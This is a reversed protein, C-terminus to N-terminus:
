SRGAKLIKEVEKKLMEEEYGRVLRGNVFVAPTGSLGLREAEAKSAAVQRATEVADFCTKFAEADLKLEQALATPSAATLSEQKSFALDHFEWFRGQKQACAAGKAIDTSVPSRIPFDLYILQVTQPYAKVLKDLATAAHRCHSCLYDAFEVITVKPQSAGISPAGATAITVPIAVPEAQRLAFHGSRKLTEVLQRRQEAQQENKLLTKIDGQIQELTYGTPIRQKNAEFWAKVDKDSPESIKYLSAEVQARTQGSKKQQEAIHLDLIADEALATRRTYTDLEIDFATQQLKPSLEKASYDRGKYTFFAEAAALEALLASLSLVGLFSGISGRSKLWSLM